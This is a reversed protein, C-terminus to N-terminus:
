PKCRRTGIFVCFARVLSAQVSSFLVM